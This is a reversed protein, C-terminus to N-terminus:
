SSTTYRMSTCMDFLSILFRAADICSWELDTRIFLGWWLVVEGRVKGLKQEAVKSVGWVSDPSGADVPLGIANIWGVFWDGSRM